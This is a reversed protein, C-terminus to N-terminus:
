FFILVGAGTMALVGAWTWRASLTRAALALAILGLLLLWPVLLAATKM